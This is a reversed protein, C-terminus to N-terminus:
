SGLCVWVIVENMFLILYESNLVAEQVHVSTGPVYKYMCVVTKRTLSFILILNHPKVTPM